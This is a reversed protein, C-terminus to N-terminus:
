GKDRANEDFTGTGGGTSSTNTKQKIKSNLLNNLRKLLAPEDKFMENIKGSDKLAQAGETTATLIQNELDFYQEVKDQNLEIGLKEFEAIQSLTALKTAFDERSIQRQNRLSELATQASLIAAQRKDKSMSKMFDLIDKNDGTQMLKDTAGLLGGQIDAFLGGRGTKPALLGQTLGALTAQRRQFAKDAMMADYLQKNAEDDVAIAKQLNEQLKTEDYNDTGLKGLISLLVNKMSSDKTTQGTGTTTDSGTVTVDGLNVDSKEGVSSLREDREKEIEEKTKDVTAKRGARYDTLTELLSPSAEREEEDLLYQETGVDSVGTISGLDQIIKRIKDQKTMVQNNQQRQVVPLSSLGGGTEAAIVPGGEKSFTTQPIPNFGPNSFAGYINAVGTATGLAQAIPSPQFQQPTRTVSAGGILPSAGQVIAQYQGLQQEPFAREQLFRKYAEDLLQQERQQGERGVAELQGLEKLQQGFQTQALGTLGQAAQAERAKQGEFARQASEFARQRGQTEIDSLLRNQDQLALSELLTGRTGGFAGAGIQAQRIKPLTEREFTEQARRKEVDIVAQQYPSMFEQIGEATPKEVTSRVLGRAEDFSPQQTGVLSKIGEQAQQQEATVDALTKGEYPVFGEETRQKYLAQGKGLIDKIFPAVEKAIEQTQVTQPVMQTPQGKGLGLLSSLISM